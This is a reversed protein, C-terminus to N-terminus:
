RTGEIWLTESLTPNTDTMLGRQSTVIRSTWCRVLKHDIPLALTNAVDDSIAPM